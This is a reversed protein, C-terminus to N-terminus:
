IATDSAPAAERTESKLEELLEADWTGRLCPTQTGLKSHHRKLRHKRRTVDFETHEQRSWLVPMGARHTADALRVIRPVISGIAEADYISSKGVTGEPHCFGNQMDVVLLGAADRAEDSFEM